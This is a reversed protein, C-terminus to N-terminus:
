LKAINQIQKLFSENITEWKENLTIFFHPYVHVEVLHYSLEAHRQEYLSIVHIKSQRLSITEIKPNKTHGLAIPESM